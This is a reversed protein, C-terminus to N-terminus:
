SHSFWDYELITHVFRKAFTVAVDGPTCIVDNRYVRDNQESYLTDKLKTGSSLLQWTERYRTSLYTASLKQRRLEQAKYEKQLDWLALHQPSEGEVLKIITEKNGETKM